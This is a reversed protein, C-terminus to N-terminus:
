FSSRPKQLDVGYRLNKTVASIEHLPSFSFRNKKSFFFWFVKVLRPQAQGPLGFGLDDFTKQKKKKLFSSRGEALRAEAASAAASGKL